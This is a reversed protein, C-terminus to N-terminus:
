LKYRKGGIKTYKNESNLKLSNTRALFLLNSEPRNDYCKEEKIEKKFAKYIDIKSYEEVEKKWKDTDWERIKRRITSRKLREIDEYKIGIEELYKNLQNNWKSKNEREKELIVRTSNNEGELINKVMLIKSEIFRTKMAPAGIDVRLAVKATTIRGGTLKRLVNNEVVKFKKIESIQM